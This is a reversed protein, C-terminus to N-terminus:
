LIEIDIVKDSYFRYLAAPRWREGHRTRKLPTLLKLKAIKKRFNRRDINKGIIIEYAEELETLTFEQPLLKSIATTYSVKAKLREMAMDVIENHDYALKGVEQVPIWWSKGTNEREEASLAEWPVLALYAVAVVRGRPDRNIRSFTYLQEMYLHALSIGAKDEILREAAMEATESPLLLGGPLGQQNKFERLHNVPILRVYLAGGKLTFLVTDAALIAFRLNKQNANKKGLNKM